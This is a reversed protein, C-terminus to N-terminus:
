CTNKITQEIIKKYVKAGDGNLHVGDITLLLKRKQSLKEPWHLEKSKRKDFYVASFFNDLFYDSRRNAVLLLDFEEAVDALLCKCSGAISKIVTNYQNRKYNIDTFLNEGICSLTTMIIKASTTAQLHQIM